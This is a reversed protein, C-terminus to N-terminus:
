SRPKKSSKKRRFLKEVLVGIVGGIFMGVIFESGSLRFGQARAFLYLSAGLIIGGIVGGWLFSPRFITEELLESTVEVPKAHIFMSFSRQVPSLQTRVSKMTKNFAADRAARTITQPERAETPKPQKERGKEAEKDLTKELKERTKEVSKEQEQRNEQSKELKESTDQTKEVKLELKERKGSSEQEPNHTLKEAM